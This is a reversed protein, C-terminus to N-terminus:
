YDIPFSLAAQSIVADGYHTDQKLYQLLAEVRVKAWKGEAGFVDLYSTLKIGMNHSHVRGLKDDDSLYPEIKTDASDYVDKYFDSSRQRYYRYSLHLEARENALEQVLRIEPAHGLIGWDDTYFRYGGILATNTMEVFYRLKAALAHRLRTKPVREAQIMGGAVVTRYINAQFGELYSLDYSLAIISQPSLIQSVSVAAMNTQLKGTVISSLGGQSGSNDLQDWGRALNIAITANRRAFDSELRLNLLTSQYDPETSYRAGGGFRLNRLSHMYLLGGEKRTETFAVGSAGSAASASTISDVLAHGILQGSEGVDLDADLMPQMVRTAREKYYAGRMTISGDARVSPSAVMMLTGLCLASLVRLQVRM